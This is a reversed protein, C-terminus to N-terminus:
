IASSSYSFIKQFYKNSNKGTSSKFRIEKLISGYVRSGLFKFQKNFL